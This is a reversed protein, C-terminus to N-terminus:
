LEPLRGIGSLTLVSYDLWLLYAEKYDQSAAKWEWLPKKM